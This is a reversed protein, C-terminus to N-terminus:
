GLVETDDGESDEIVVGLRSLTTSAKGPSAVGRSESLRSDASTVSTVDDDDEQYRWDDPLSDDTDEVATVEAKREGPKKMLQDVEKQGRARLSMEKVLDIWHLEAKCSPCNGLVPVLASAPGQDRLFVAALCSLHFVGKCSEQPCVLTLSAEPEILESCITCHMVEDEALLFVSKELHSKLGSYGVDLGDVGGKGLRERKRQGKAHNTMPIENTGASQEAQKVDLSVKVPNRMTADVGHNREQWIQYVDHCFFRVQLPWRAFSPVQVLLHLNSVEDELSTRPRVKRKRTQGSKVKTVPQKIRQHDLIKKTIHANHWAWEFQLAAIKSPFGTVIVTMEWPRRHKRSTRAAGGKSTGNHQALRRVPNPTSGVYLPPRKRSKSGLSRLLYCCYFAPIPRADM